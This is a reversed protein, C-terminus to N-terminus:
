HNYIYETLAKRVNDGSNDHMTHTSTSTTAQPDDYVPILSLGIIMLDKGMHKVSITSYVAPQLLMLFMM